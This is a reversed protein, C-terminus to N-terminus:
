ERSEEDDIESYHIHNILAKEAETTINSDKMLSFIKFKKHLDPNIHIVQDKKKVAAEQNNPM